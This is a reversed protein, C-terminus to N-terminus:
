NKRAFVIHNADVRWGVGAHQPTGLPALTVLGVTTTESQILQPPFWTNGASDIAELYWVSQGDSGGYACAPKGNITTAGDSFEVNDAIKTAGVPWDDGLDDNARKYYLSNTNVAGDHFFAAPRGDAIVFQVNTITNGDGLTYLVEPPQWASGTINAGRVFMIKVDDVNDKDQEGYIIAPFNNSLTGLQPSYAQEGSDATVRAAPWSEGSADTARMYALEYENTGFDLLRFAIAPNGNVAAIDPDNVLQSPNFITGGGWATGDADDGNRFELNQGGLPGAFALGPVGGFFGLSCEQWGMGLDVKPNWTTGSIDQAQVYYMTFTGTNRAYALAPKGNVEALTLYIPDQGFTAAISITWGAGGATALGGDENSYASDPEGAKTSRVVYFYTTDVVVTNDSYSPTMSTGIETYPGGSMDARFIRYGTPSPGDLPANWTLEVHDTYFGDTAGLNTPPELGPTGFHIETLTTSLFRTSMVTIVMRNDVPSVYDSYVGLDTEGTPPPPLWDWRNTTFNALGVFLGSSPPSGGQWTLGLLGQGTYDTLDLEYLAYSLDDYSDLDPDAAFQLNTGQVTVRNNPLGAEFQSALLSREGPIVAASKLASPAPLLPLLAAGLPEARNGSRDLSGACGAVLLLLFCALFRTMM